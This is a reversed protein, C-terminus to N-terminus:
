AGLDTAVQGVLAQAQAVAQQAAHLTAGDTTATFGSAPVGALLTTATALDTEDTSGPTVAPQLTAIAAAVREAHRLINVGRVYVVPRFTDLVTQAAALNADSADATLVAAAAEVAAKDTAVNALVAAKDTDTLRGVRSDKVAQTLRRDLHALARLTHTSSSHATAHSAAHHGHGPAAVATSATTALAAAAVLTAAIRPIRNM